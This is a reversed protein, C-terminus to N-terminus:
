SRLFSGPSFLRLVPLQEEKTERAKAFPELNYKNKGPKIYAPGPLPRFSRRIDAPDTSKYGSRVPTRLFEERSRFITDYKASVSVATYVKNSKGFAIGAQLIFVLLVIVAAAINAPNKM